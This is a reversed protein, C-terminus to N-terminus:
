FRESCRCLPSLALRPDRVDLVNGNSLTNMEYTSTQLFIWGYHHDAHPVSHSRVRDQTSVELNDHGISNTQGCGLPGAAAFYCLYPSGLSEVSEWGYDERM